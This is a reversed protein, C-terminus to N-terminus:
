TIAAEIAQRRSKARRRTWTSWGFMAMGIGAFVITSPEPVVTLTGTSQSFVLAQQNGNFSSLWDGSVLGYKANLFSQGEASISDFSQFTLGAYDTGDANLTVASLNGTPTGTFGTFLNFFTDEDYFTTDIMTLALTGGYNLTSSGNLGIIQEYIDSTSGGITLATIASSGLSLSGVTLRSIADDLIGGGVSVGGPALTGSSVIVAGNFTGSGGLYGFSTTTSSGSITGNMLLRGGSTVTTDGTYTQDGNVVWVNGISAGGITVNVKGSASNDQIAGNITQTGINLGGGGNLTLTVPTTVGSVAENFNVANFTINSSQNPTVAGNGNLRFQLNTAVPALTTGVASTRFVGTETSTGLDVVSIGNVSRNVAGGFAAASLQVVGQEITLATLDNTGTLLLEGAGTKVLSGGGSLTGSLTVHHNSGMNFTTTGGFALSSSITDTLTGTTVATTTVTAGNVLSLAPTTASRSLIFAGTFTGTNTNNFLISDVTVAGPGLNNNSTKQTPNGRYVLSFTGSTTPQTTWNGGSSWNTGNTGSWTTITSASATSAAAMCALTLLTKRFASAFMAADQTQTASDTSCNATLDSLLLNSIIRDPM